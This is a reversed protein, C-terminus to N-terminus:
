IQFHIKIELSTYNSKENNRLRHEVRSNRKFKKYLMQVISYRRWTLIIGM